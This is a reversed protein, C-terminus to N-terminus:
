KTINFKKVSFGNDTKVKAIYMGVALNQVNIEIQYDNVQYNGINKGFMDYLEVSNIQNDAQLNIAKDTPNPYLVVNSNTNDIDKVGVVNGEIVEFNNIFLYYNVDYAYFAFYYTGAQTINIARELQVFDINDLLTLDEILELQAVETTKETGFYIAFSATPSNYVAYDFKITYEGEDFDFCSSFLWDNATPEGQFYSAGTHYWMKDGGYNVPLWAAGDMDVDITTWNLNDEDTEFENLYTYSNVPAVTGTYVWISTDNALVEDNALEIWTRVSDIAPITLDVLNTFTYTYEDGSAITTSVSEAIPTSNGVQYYATFNDVEDLGTNRVTMSIVENATLECSLDPVISAIVSLDNNKANVVNINDLFLYAQNATSTAKFGLYYIGPTTVTFFESGQAFDTHTINSFSKILTMNAPDPYTGFYVSFSEPTYYLYSAYQFEITYIGADLDFCSSFLWDNANNETSYIYRWMPNNEYIVPTWTRDDNNVDQVSWGKYLDDNNFDNYYPVVAPAPIGTYYWDTTDNALFGDGEIEVWGRLSDADMDFTLDAKTNFTYIYEADPAINQTVAEMVPTNNGIQYYVNFTSVASTGDNYIGIQIEEQDTLNCSYDPVGLGFAELNIDFKEKIRIDDVFFIFNDNSVCRLAVYKANAPIEYEYYTWETPAQETPRTSVINTNLFDELNNSATSYIVQFEELGYQSTYSAAWFSFSYPNGSGSLLPSIMWDDNHVGGSPVASFCAFVQGGSPSGVTYNMGAKEFDFTIFAAPQGQNEFSGGQISYNNLGDNDVFTWPGTTPNIVFPPYSEVDDYIPLNQAQSFFMAVSFLLILTFIKKM